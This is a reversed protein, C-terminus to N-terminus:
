AVIWAVFYAVVHAFAHALMATELGFRWFLYGFLIGAASNFGVVCAFLGGTIEGAVNMAYPLHLVGFLVASVVIATWALIAAPALADRVFVKMSAWLVFTMVGWRLLIEETIGGYLVRTILPPAVSKSAEALVAPTFASAAVLIAAGVMGALMSPLVMVRLVPKVNGGAVLSEFVPAHLDVRPSLKGGAWVALTLLLTPQVLSLLKLLWLPMPLEIDGPIPLEMLLTSLVGAMGALWLGTTPRAPYGSM